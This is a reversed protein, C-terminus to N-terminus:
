PRGSCGGCALICYVAILKVLREATRLRAHEAAAAQREPYPSVGRDELAPCVLGVERRGARPQGRCDTILRWDIAPRDKPTEPERRCSRHTSLPPYRKQKGIPPLVTISAIALEVSATVLRGRQDRVEIPIFAKSPSRRWRTPSRTSATVALRDVCSRVIFHTGLDHALSFLEYIDCERDGVHVCRDPAAFLSTSQRLNELWRFSEKQRSRYAPRISVKRKLANRARSSRGRVLVEGSCARAAPGDSTVALSCAHLLGCLTHM